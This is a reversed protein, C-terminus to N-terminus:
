ALRPREILRDVLAFVVTLFLSGLLADLFTSIEFGPVLVAALWLLLANVVFAFLGLTLLTLPLTLLHVLPRIFLNILGIVAGAWFAVGWSQIHFGPLFNALLVLSLALVFWKLLLRM